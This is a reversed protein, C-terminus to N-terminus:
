AAAGVIAYIRRLLADDPEMFRIDAIELLAKELAVERPSKQTRLRKLERLCLSTVGSFVLSPNRTFYELLADIDEDSIDREQPHTTDTM